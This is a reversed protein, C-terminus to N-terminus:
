GTYSYSTFSDCRDTAGYLKMYCTDINHCHSYINLIAIVNARWPRYIPSYLCSMRNVTSYALRQVRQVLQEHFSNLLKTLFKYTDGVVYTWCRIDITIIFPTRMFESIAFILSACSSVWIFLYVKYGHSFNLMMMKKEIQRQYYCIVYFFKRYTFKIENTFNYLYNVFM